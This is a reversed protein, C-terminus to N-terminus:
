IEQPIGLNPTEKNPKNARIHRKRTFATNNDDSKNLIIYAQNSSFSATKLLSTCVFVNLIHM